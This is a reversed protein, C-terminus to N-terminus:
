WVALAWWREPESAEEVWLTEKGGHLLLDGTLVSVFLPGEILDVVLSIDEFLNNWTIVAANFAFDDLGDILTDENVTEVQFARLPVLVVLAELLLGALVQEEGEWDHVDGGLGGVLVQHVLGGGLLGLVVVLLPGVVEAWDVLVGLTVVPIQDETGVKLGLTWRSGLLRDWLSHCSDHVPLELANSQKAAFLSERGRGLSTFKKM